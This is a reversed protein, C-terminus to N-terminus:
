GRLSRTRRGSAMANCPLDAYCQQGDPCVRDTGEPCHDARNELCKRKARRWSTGCFYHNRPDDYGYSEDDFSESSELSTSESENNSDLDTPEGQSTDSFEESSEESSEEAHSSGKPLIEVEACNWFQEPVGDGDEPLKGCTPLHKNDDWGRPWDYNKYGKHICSNATLYQWQILVLSGRLSSPLQYKHKFKLSNPVVTSDRRFNEMVNVPPIYAREPYDPDPNAGYYMDEIFTLPNEDFCDQSPIEGEEIACAKLTLHGKHHATIVSEVIIEDGEVYTDQITTPMLDGEVNEPEDYNHGQFLGCRALTGGRNLCHPCTDKRPTDDGGGSYKGEIYAHLNRSRPSKLFGHGSVPTLFHSAGSLLIGLLTPTSLFVVRRNM